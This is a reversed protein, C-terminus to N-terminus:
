VTARMGDLYSVVLVLGQATQVMERPVGNVANNYSNLWDRRRKEDNGVLTDLSRYLRVLLSALEGEKSQPEITREGNLVRSVTAESLGLVKGLAAGNLGLLTAARLTAKALVAGAVPKAAPAATKM